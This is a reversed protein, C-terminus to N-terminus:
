RSRHPQRQPEERPACSVELFARPVVPGAGSRSRRDRTSPLPRPVHRRLRSHPVGLHRRGNPILKPPHTISRRRHGRRSTLQDTRSESPCSATMTALRHVGAQVSQSQDDVLRPRRGADVLAVVATELHVQGVIPSAEDALPLDTVDSGIAHAEGDRLRKRAHQHWRDVRCRAGTSSCRGAPPASPERHDGGSEPAEDHRKPSSRAVSQKSRDGAPLLGAYPGYAAQRRRTKIERRAAVPSSRGLGRPLPGYRSPAVGFLRDSGCLKPRNSSHRSALNELAVQPPRRLPGPPTSAPPPPPHGDLRSKRRILASLDIVQRQISNQRPIVVLLGSSLGTIGATGPPPPHCARWGCRTLPAGVDSFRPEPQGRAGM